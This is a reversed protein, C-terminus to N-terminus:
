LIPVAKIKQIDFTLAVRQGPPCFLFKDQPWPGNILSHLYDLSGDFALFEMDFDKAAKKAQNRFASDNGIPSSIYAYYHYPLLWNNMTEMLFDANEEGYLESYEKHKKQYGEKSPTFAHEMWGRSFWYIGPFSSFLEQYRASSGLLLSICDDCRPIILPLSSSLNEVSNSCLGYALAIADFRMCPSLESNEKEIEHITSQLRQHLTSPTDHLGQRLWWTRVIQTSESSLRNIERNLVMCAILAIRM